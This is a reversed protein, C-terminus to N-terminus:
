VEQTIGLLKVENTNKVKDNNITLELNEDHRSLLLHYKDSNPNLWNHEFWKYMKNADNELLNLVETIRNDVVYPLNDLQETYM